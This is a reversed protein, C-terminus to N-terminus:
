NIFIAVFQESLTYQGSMLLATTSYLILGWIKKNELYSAIENWSNPYRWVGGLSQYVAM